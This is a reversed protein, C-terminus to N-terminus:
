IFMNSTMLAIPCWDHHKLLLLSAKEVLEFTRKYRMSLHVKKSDPIGNTSKEILNIQGPGPNSGTVELTAPLRHEQMRLWKSRNHQEILFTFQSLTM